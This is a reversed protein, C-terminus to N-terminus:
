AFFANANIHFFRFLASLLLLAKFESANIMVSLREITMMHLMFSSEIFPM